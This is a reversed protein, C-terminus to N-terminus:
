SGITFTTSPTRPLYIEKVKWIRTRQNDMFEAFPEYLHVIVPNHVTILTVAMSSGSSRWSFFPFKDMGQAVVTTSSPLPGPKTPPISVTTDSSLSGKQRSLMPVSCPDVLPGDTPGCRWAVLLGKRISSDVEHLLVHHLDHLHMEHSFIFLFLREDSKLSRYGEAHFSCIYAHTCAAMILRAGPSVHDVVIQQDEIHNRSRFLVVVPPELASRHALELHIFRTSGLGGLQHQDHPLSLSWLLHHQLTISNVRAM